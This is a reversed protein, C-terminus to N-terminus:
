VLSCSTSCLLTTRRTDWHYQRRATAAGFKRPVEVTRREDTPRFKDEDVLSGDKGRLKQVRSTVPNRNRSKEGARPFASRVAGPLALFAASTVILLTNVM